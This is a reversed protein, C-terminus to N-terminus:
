KDPYTHEKKFKRIETELDKTQEIIFKLTEGPPLNKIKKYAREKWEWVELQAKSIKTEM